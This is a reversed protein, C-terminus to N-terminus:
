PGVIVGLHTERLAAVVDPDSGAARRPDRGRPRARGRLAGRAPGRPSGLAEITVPLEGGSARAFPGGQEAFLKRLMSLAGAYSTPERSGRQTRATLEPGGERPEDPWRAGERRV